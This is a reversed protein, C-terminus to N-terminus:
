FPWKANYKEIDDKYIIYVLNKIEEDYFYKYNQPLNKNVIDKPIDGCFTDIDHKIGHHPSNYKNVDLEYFTNDHLNITYKENEDIKIYKTIINEEGIIYQNHSHYRDNENLTLDKNIIKKLYERFSLNHSTQTRYISVARIYPNMIFKIFTYKESILKDIETYSINGDFIDMRYNHIFPKYNLGDELLGVLDLYQQYSISCGGRPSFTICIKNKNDVYWLNSYASNGFKTRSVDKENVNNILSEMHIFIYIYIHIYKYINM